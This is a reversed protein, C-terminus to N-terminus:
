RRSTYLLCTKIEHTLPAVAGNIKAGVCHNGGETHVAYAFDLPTSGARLAIVEGKPTFVFIEQDFLDVKLSHLYERDRICM